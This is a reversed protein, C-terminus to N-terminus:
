KRLNMAWMNHNHPSETKKGKLHSAAKQSLERPIELKEFCFVCSHRALSYADMAVYYVCLLDAGKQLRCLERLRLAAM